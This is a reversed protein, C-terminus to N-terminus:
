SAAIAAPKRAANEERSPLHRGFDLELMRGRRKVLRSAPHTEIHVQKQGEYMDKRTRLAATRSCRASRVHEFPPLVRGAQPQNIILLRRLFLFIGTMRWTGHLSSYPSNLQTHHDDRWFRGPITIDCPSQRVSILMPQSGPHNVLVEDM